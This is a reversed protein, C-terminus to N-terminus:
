ASAPSVDFAVEYHTVHEDYGALLQAVAPEVVARELEDGAFARVAQLSEWLTEVVVEAEQEGRVLLRAGRFGPLSRLEPLVTGAFHERCYRDVGDRSGWGRWRRVIASM